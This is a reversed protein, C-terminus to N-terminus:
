SSRTLKELRWPEYGYMEPLPEGGFAYNVYARQKTSGSGEVTIRVMEQSAATIDSSQAPNTYGWIPSSGLGHQM